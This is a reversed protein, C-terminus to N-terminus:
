WDGDDFYDDYDHEFEALSTNYSDIEDGDDPTDLLNSRDEDWWPDPRMDAAGLRQMAKQRKAQQRAYRIRRTEELAAVADEYEEDSLVPDMEHRDRQRHEFRGAVKRPAWCAPHGPGTWWGSPARSPRLKRRERPVRNHRPCTCKRGYGCRDLRTAAKHTLKSYRQRIQRRSAVVGAWEDPIRVLRGRRFRYFGDPMKILKGSKSRGIAALRVIADEAPLRKRHRHKM